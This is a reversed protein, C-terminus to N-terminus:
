WVFYTKEFLAAVRWQDNEASLALVAYGKVGGARYKVRASALGHHVLDVDVADVELYKPQDGHQRLYEAPRKQWPQVKNPIQAVGSVLADANAFLSENTKAKGAALNRYFTTVFDKAQKAADSPKEDPSHAARPSVAPLLLFPVTLAAMLAKQTRM